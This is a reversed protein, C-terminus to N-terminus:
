ARSRCRWRWRSCTASASSRAGARRQGLRHRHQAHEAAPPPLPPRGRRARVPRARQLGTDAVRPHRVDVRVPDHDDGGDHQAARHGPVLVLAAVGLSAGLVIGTAMDRGRARRLGLLEMAGSGVIAFTVFGWLPNAGVLFAGAGGTTGLDGLSHGAFSQGRIVTFVGVVRVRGLGSGGVVLAVRVPSSAFFGPEFVQDLVSGLMM